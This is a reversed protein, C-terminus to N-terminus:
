GRLPPGDVRFEDRTSYPNTGQEPGFTGTPENEEEEIAHTHIWIATPRGHMLFSGVMQQLADEGYQRKWTELNDIMIGFRLPTELAKPSGTIWRLYMRCIPLDPMTIGVHKTILHWKDRPFNGLNGFFEKEEQTLPATAPPEPFGLVTFRVHNHVAGIM